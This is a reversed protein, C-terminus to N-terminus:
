PDAKYATFGKAELSSRLKGYWNRPADAQGYLSKNLKLVKDRPFGNMMPPPTIYVPGWKMDACAFANSIDTSRTDLQLM